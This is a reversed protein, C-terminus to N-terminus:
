AYGFLADIKSATEQELEPILHSYIDVGMARNPQDSM